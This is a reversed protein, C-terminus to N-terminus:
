VALRYFIYSAIGMYFLMLVLRHHSVHVVDKLHIGGYVGALSALGVTIGGQFDVLGKFSLSVLGAVSSFVVFFLGASTAKKLPVHLFGALLPVLLLSGGVGISISFAGIPVGALFLVVPHGSKEDPADHPTYFMRVLAMLVFAFFVWELTRSSLISIIYGSLLAGAFGGAGIIFVMKIDLTGKKLNLYSGYISSFVMQLVSIGVASKIDFGLMLLAPVLIAGGGIGFFGSLVGILSGIIILEITM